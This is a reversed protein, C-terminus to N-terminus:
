NYSTIIGDEKFYFCSSQYGDWCCQYEVGSGYDSQNVWNPLGRECKLMEISMGIWIRNGAVTTCEIRTWEPHNKQIRGAKSNTWRVNEISDARVQRPREVEALRTVMDSRLSDAKMQASDRDSKPNSITPASIVALFIVLAVILIFGILYKINTKM